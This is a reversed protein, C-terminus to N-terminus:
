KIKCQGCSGNGTGSPHFHATNWGMTQFLKNVLEALGMRDCDRRQIGNDVLMCRIGHCLQFCLYGLDCFGNQRSFIFCLSRNQFFFSQRHCRGKLLLIRLIFGNDNCRNGFISGVAISATMRIPFICFKLAIRSNTTGHKIGVIHCQDTKICIHRLKASLEMLFGNCFGVVLEM